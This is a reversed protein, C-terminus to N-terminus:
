SAVHHLRGSQFYATLVDLNCFPHRWRCGRQNEGPVRFGNVVTNQCLIDFAITGPTIMVSFPLKDYFEEFTTAHFPHRM